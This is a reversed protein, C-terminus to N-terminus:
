NNNPAEGFPIWDFEERFKIPFVLVVGNASAVRFTRTCVYRRVCRSIARLPGTNGSRPVSQFCNRRM